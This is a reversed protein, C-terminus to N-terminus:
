PRGWTATKLLGKKNNGHRRATEGAGSVHSERGRGTSSALTVLNTGVFVGRAARPPPRNALRTM